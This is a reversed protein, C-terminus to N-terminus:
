SLNRAKLIAALRARTARTAGPGAVLAVESPALERGARSAVKVEAIDEGSAIEIARVPLKDMGVVWRDAWQRLATIVPFLARGKDTLRYEYRGARPDPAPVRRLIGQRTLKRLRASLINRAIGLHRQFDAFRRTGMFAERLILMSWWEGVVELARAVSCNMHAFTKRRM